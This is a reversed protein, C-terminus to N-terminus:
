RASSEPPRRRCRASLRPVPSQGAAPQQGPRSRRFPSILLTALKDRPHGRGPPLALYALVTQAKKTALALAPGTATRAQFGGLLSLTLRATVDPVPASEGTM